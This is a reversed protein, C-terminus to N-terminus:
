YHVHLIIYKQNASLSHMKKYSLHLTSVYTCIVFLMHLSEFNDTKVKQSTKEHLKNVLLLM